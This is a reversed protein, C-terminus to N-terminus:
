SQELNLCQGLGSEFNIYIKMIKSHFFELVYLTVIM